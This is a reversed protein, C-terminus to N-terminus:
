ARSRFGPLKNDDGVHREGEIRVSCFSLNGCFAGISVVDPLAIPYIGNLGASFYYVGDATGPTWSFSINRLPNFNGMPPVATPMGNRVGQVAGFIPYISSLTDPRATWIVSIVDFELTEIDVIFFNNQDVSFERIVRHSRTSM